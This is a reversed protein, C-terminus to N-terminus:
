MPLLAFKLFDARMDIGRGGIGKKGTQTKQLLDRSNQHGFKDIKTNSKCGHGQNHETKLTRENFFGHELINKILLM